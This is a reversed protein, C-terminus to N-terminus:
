DLWIVRDNKDIKFYTSKSSIMVDSLGTFAGFFRLVRSTVGTEGTEEPEEKQMHDSPNQGRKFWRSMEELTEVSMPKVILQVTIFYDDNRKMEKVPMLNFQQIELCMKRVKDLSPTHRIEKETVAIYKKDWSDYSLKRRVITEHVLQSFILPKKKWLQIRYELTSTFGNKLREIIEKDILGESHFDIVLMTSDIKIEDVMVRKSAAYLKGFILVAAIILFTTLCSKKRM